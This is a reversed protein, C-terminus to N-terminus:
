RKIMKQIKAVFKAKDKLSTKAVLVIGFEPKMHHIVGLIMCGLPLNLQAANHEDIPFFGTKDPEASKVISIAREIENLTIGQLYAVIKKPMYGKNIMVGTHWASNDLTNALAVVSSSM